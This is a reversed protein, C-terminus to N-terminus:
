CATWCSRRRTRRPALDKAGQNGCCKQRVALESGLENSDYFWTVVINNPDVDERGFGLFGARWQIGGSSSEVGIDAVFAAREAGEKFGFVTDITMEVRAKSFPRYRIDVTGELPTIEGTFGYFGKEFAAKADDFEDADANGTLGLLALCFALASLM